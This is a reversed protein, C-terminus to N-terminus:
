DQEQMSPKADFHGQPTATDDSPIDDASAVVYLTTAYYGTALTCGTEAIDMSMSLIHKGVQMVSTDFELAYPAQVAVGLVWGDLGYTVNFVSATKGERVPTVSVSNIAFPEGQVVYIAGDAATAGTYDVNLTVDPLDDDDHCSTLALLPLAAALLLRILKM